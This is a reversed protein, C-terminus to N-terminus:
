LGPRRRLVVNSRDAILIPSDYCPIDTFRYTKGDGSFNAQPIEWVKGERLDV